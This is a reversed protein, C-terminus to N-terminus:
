YPVIFVKTFSILEQTLQFGFFLLMNSFSEFFNRSITGFLSSATCFIHKFM